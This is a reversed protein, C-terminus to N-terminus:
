HKENKFLAIVDKRNHFNSNDMILVGKPNNQCHVDLKEGIFTFFYDGDFSGEGIDYALIGLDKIAVM